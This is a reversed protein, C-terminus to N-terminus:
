NSPNSATPCHYELASQRHKTGWGAFKRRAPKLHGLPTTRHARDAM